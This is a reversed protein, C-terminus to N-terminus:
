LDSEKKSILFSVKWHKKRRMIGLQQQTKVFKKEFGRFFLFFHTFLHRSLFFLVLCTVISMDLCIEVHESLNRCTPLWVTCHEETRTSSTTKSPRPCTWNPSKAKSLANKILRRVYLAAVCIWWPCLNLQLFFFYFKKLCKTDFNWLSILLDM